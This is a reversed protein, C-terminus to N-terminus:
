KFDLLKKHDGQIYLSRLEVAKTEMEYM